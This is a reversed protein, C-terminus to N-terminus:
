ADARQGNGILVGVLGAEAVVHTAHDRNDGHGSPKDPAPDGLQSV